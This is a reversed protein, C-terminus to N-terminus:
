RPSIRDNIAPQPSVVGNTPGKATGKAPAIRELLSKPKPQTAAKTAAIPASMSAEQERDLVLELKIARESVFAIFKDIGGKM